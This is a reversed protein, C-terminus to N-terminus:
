LIDHCQTLNSSTLWLMGRVEKRFMATTLAIDRCIDLIDNWIKRGEEACGM